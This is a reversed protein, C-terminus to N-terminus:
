KNDCNLSELYADRVLSTGGPVKGFILNVNFRIAHEMPVELEIETYEMEM